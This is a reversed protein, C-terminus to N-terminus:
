KRIEINRNHRDLKIETDGDKFHEVSTTAPKNNADVALKNREREKRDRRERRQKRDPKEKETIDQINPVSREDLKLNGDSFFNVKVSSKISSISMSM